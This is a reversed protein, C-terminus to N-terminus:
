NIKASVRDRGRSAEALSADLELAKNYAVLATENSGAMERAYGCRTWWYAYEVPKVHVAMSLAIDAHQYRAQRIYIEGLCFYAFGIDGSNQPANALYLQFAELAGNNKGLYYKAEALSEILRIDSSSVKRGEVARAEAEAYRKSRILSWCMVCYSDINNPNQMLEAECVAISEAYRGARYLALADAKQSYAGVSAFSLLFALAIKQIKM